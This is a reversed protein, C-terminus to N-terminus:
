SNQSGFKKKPNGLGVFRSQLRESNKEAPAHPCTPCRKDTPAVIKSKRCALHQGTGVALQKDHLVTGSSKGREKGRTEPGEAMFSFSQGKGGLLETRFEGSSGRKESQTNRSDGRRKQPNTKVEGHSGRKKVIGDRRRYSAEFTTLPSTMRLPHGPLRSGFRERNGEDHFIRQWVRRATIRIGDPGSQKWTSANGGRHHTVATSVPRKFEGKKEKPEEKVKTV